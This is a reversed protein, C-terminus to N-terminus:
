DWGIAPHARRHQQLICCWKLFFFPGIINCWLAFGVGRRQRTGGRWTCMHASTVSFMTALPFRRGEQNDHPIVALNSRPAVVEVEQPPTSWSPPLILKLAAILLLAPPAESVLFILMAEQKNSCFCVFFIYCLLWFTFSWRHTAPWSTTPQGGPVSPTPNQQKISPIFILWTNQGRCFVMLATFIWRHQRGGVAALSLRLASVDLFHPEFLRRESTSGPVSCRRSLLLPFRRRSRRGPVSTLMHPLIGTQDLSLLSFVAQSDVMIGVPPDPKPGLKCQNGKPELSNLHPM